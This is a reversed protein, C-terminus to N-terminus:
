GPMVPLGVLAAAAVNCLIGFAVLGCGLLQLDAGTFPGDDRPPLPVSLLLEPDMPGPPDTRRDIPM